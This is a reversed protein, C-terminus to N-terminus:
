HIKPLVKTHILDEIRKIWVMGELQNAVVDDLVNPLQVSPESDESPSPIRDFNSELEIYLQRLTNRTTFSLGLITEEKKETGANM